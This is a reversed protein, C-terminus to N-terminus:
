PVAKRARVQVARVAAASVDRLFDFAEPSDEQLMRIMEPGSVGSGDARRFVPQDEPLYKLMDLLAHRAPGPEYIHRGDLASLPRREVVTGREPDLSVDWYGDADLDFLNSHTAIFMQKVRGEEVLRMLLRRLHAGSTPGHLHVEPEELAVIPAGCLMVSALITYLQQIGLGARELPLAHSDDPLEEQIEVIRSHVDQVLDFRPRYLPDGGIFKRFEEFKKRIKRDKSIMSKFLADKLKGAILLNFIHSFETINGDINSIFGNDSDLTRIAPILYYLYNNKIKNIEYNLQKIVEDRDISDLPPVIDITGDENNKIRFEFNEEVLFISRNILNNLITISIKLKKLYPIIFKDLDFYISILIPINIESNKHNDKGSVGAGVFSNFFLNIADLINSKGVGNEGYLVNFKGLGKMHLSRISRFNEIKLESIYM